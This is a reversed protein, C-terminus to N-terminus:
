PLYVYMAGDKSWQVEEAIDLASHLIFPNLHRAQDSFRAQGDGGQKSTGFEYEFLPQDQTGVIAFYYSMAALAPLRVNSRLNRSDTSCRTAIPSERASTWRSENFRVINDRPQQTPLRCRRQLYGLQTPGLPKSHSTKACRIPAPALSRCARRASGVNERTPSKSANVERAENSECELWVM